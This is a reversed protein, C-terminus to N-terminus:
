PGRDPGPGPEHWLPGEDIVRRVRAVDDDADAQELAAQAAQYRMVAADYDPRAEPQLEVQDELTVIDSALM